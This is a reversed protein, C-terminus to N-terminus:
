ETDPTRLKKLKAVRSSLEKDDELYQLKKGDRTQAYSACFSDIALNDDKECELYWKAFEEDSAEMPIDFAIIELNKEDRQQDIFDTKVAVTPRNSKIDTMSFIDLLSFEGTTKVICKKYIRPETKAM